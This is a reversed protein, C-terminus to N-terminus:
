PTMESIIEVKENKEELKPSTSEEENKLQEISEGVEEKEDVEEMEGGSRLSVDEHIELDREGPNVDITSILNEQQDELFLNNPNIMADDMFQTYARTM